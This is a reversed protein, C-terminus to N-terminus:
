ESRLVRVPDIRCARRAPLYCAALTVLALLFCAAALVPPDAARVGLSTTRLVRGLAVAVVLGISAGIAALGLGEVLLLRVIHSGNAGFVLRIGMEQMREGVIQSILSFLGMAALFLALSAFVGFLATVTRSGKLDNYMEGEATRIEIPAERSLQRIASRIGPIAAGAARTRIVVTMGRRPAQEWSVFFQPRPPETLNARLVDNLVGAVTFWQRDLADLRIRRGIPDQGPWFRNAATRNVVVVRPAKERDGAEIARGRELPVGLTEIAGPTAALYTGSPREAAAPEARDALAFTTPEGDGDVCPIESIAAAREVLPAGGLRRFVEEYFDRVASDSVYRKESPKLDVLV